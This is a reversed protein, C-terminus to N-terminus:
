TVTVDITEAEGAALYLEPASSSYTSATYHWQSWSRDGARVDVRAGLGHANGPGGDLRVNVAPGCGGQVDWLELYEIGSVVVDPRGDRDFDGVSIARGIGLSSFGTEERADRWTLDGNNLHLTAHKNREPQEQFRISGYSAMVDPHTDLDLDVIEIGWGAGVTERDPYLGRALASDVYLLSGDDELLHVLQDDSMLLDPRGDGTLDDADGGMGAIVLECACDGARLFHGTGDNILLRNSKHRHGHDNVLYLDPDGDVDVDAFVGEYTLADFVEDPLADDDPQFSGDPQQRYLHNGDGVQEGSEILQGSPDAVFGSAFLDLLGDGDVDAWALTKTEGRPSALQQEYFAAGGQNRLLIVPRTEDTALVVDLDGDGD